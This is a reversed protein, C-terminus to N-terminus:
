DFSSAKMRRGTVYPPVNNVTGLSCLCYHVISKEKGAYLM